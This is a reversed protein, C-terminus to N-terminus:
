AEKYYKKSYILMGYPIGILLNIIYWKKKIKELNGM